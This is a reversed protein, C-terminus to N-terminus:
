LIFFKYPAQNIKLIYVGSAPLTRQYTNQAWRQEILQGTVSYLEIVAAGQFTAYLMRNKVSIAPSVSQTNTEIGTPVDEVQEISYTLTTFDLTFRHLGRTYIPYKSNAALGDPRLFNPTLTCEIKKGNTNGVEVVNQTSLQGIAAPLAVNGATNEFMSVTTTQADCYARIREDDNIVAYFTVTTDSDLTFSAREVANPNNDTRNTGYNDQYVVAFQHLNAWGENQTEGDPKPEAGWKTDWKNNKFFKKLSLSCQYANDSGEIPTMLYRDDNPATAGGWDTETAKDTVWLPKVVLKVDREPLPKGLYQAILRTYNALTPAKGDYLDSEFAWMFGALGNDKMRKFTLEMEALGGGGTNEGMVKLTPIHNKALNALFEIPPPNGAGSWEPNSDIWTGFVIVKPDTIGEIFRKFDHARQVEMTGEAGSSGNLNVQIATEAQGERLGWSPYLMAMENDFYKRVTTIQWDHYNKLAEIYWELFLRADEHNASAAGPIWGPVPCVPVGAPLGVGGTNGQAINDFAWYCNTKSNFNPEIYGLEGYRMLGLRVIEFNTGLEEFVDQFYQEQKQRMLDNFVVNVATEGIGGSYEDGYQNKWRSNPYNYIWNPPYQTGFDLMVQYDLDRYSQLLAKQNNIYNTNKVGESSYFSDWGLALIAMRMGANYNAQLHAPTNQLTGFIFEDVPDDAAQATFFVSLFFSFCLTKNKM